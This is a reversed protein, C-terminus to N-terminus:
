REAVDPEAPRAIPAQENRAALSPPRSRPLVRHEPTRAALCAPSATYAGRFGTPADFTVGDLLWRTEAPPSGALWLGDARLSAGPLRSVVAEIDGKGRWRQLSQHRVVVVGPSREISVPPPRIETIRDSRIRTMRGFRTRARVYPDRWSYLGPDPVSVTCRRPENDELQITLVGREDAQIMTQINSDCGVRAWVYVMPREYDDLIRVRAQDGALASSVALLFSTSWM